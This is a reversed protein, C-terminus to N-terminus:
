PELDMPRVTESVNVSSVGGRMFNVQVSGTFGEPINTIIGRLFARLWPLRKQPQEM